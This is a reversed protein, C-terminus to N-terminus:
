PCGTGHIGAAPQVLRRWGILSLRDWSLGSCAASIEEMRDLVAQGM